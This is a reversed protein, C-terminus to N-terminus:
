NKIKFFETIAKRKRVYESIEEGPSGAITQGDPVDKVVVAGMGITVDKGLKKQNLISASPAVWTNDGIVVSGAVMANAIVMSNKGVVVGHAIHVLNDVKSAEGLLTSGLVARDICSNNGIEVHDSIIVNGLHPILQFIGQEDKEYGFGVGGITCNSGITVSKGILTSDKIVTNHGIISNDGIESGEEIVVNEGIFVQQGIKVSPHIVATAAIAPPVKKVFLARLVKMFSMRPDEVIVYTCGPKIFAEDVEATLIIGTSVHQLISSNKASCWMLVEPDKNAPDLKQVTSFVANENGIIKKISIIDILSSVVHM